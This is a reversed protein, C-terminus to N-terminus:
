RGDRLVRISGIEHIHFYFTWRKFEKNKRGDACSSEASSSSEKRLTLKNRWQLANPHVPFCFTADRGWMGAGAGPSGVTSLAFVNLIDSDTLAQVRTTETLFM